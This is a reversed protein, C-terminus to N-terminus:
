AATNNRTGFQDLWTQLADRDYVVKKSFKIYEPATRGLLKGTVRSIKLTSPACGIFAAAEITNLRSPYPQFNSLM